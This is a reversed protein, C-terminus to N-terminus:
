MRAAVTLTNQILNYEPVHGKAALSSLRNFIVEQGNLQIHGFISAGMTARINSIKSGGFTGNIDV